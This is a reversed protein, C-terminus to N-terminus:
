FGRQEVKEDRERVWGWGRAVISWRNDGYNQKKCSTMYNTDYLIYGRWIPKKQKAIPM